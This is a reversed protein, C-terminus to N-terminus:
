AVVFNVLKAGVVVVKRLTADVLLEAVRADARAAAETQEADAAAPVMVRARVKGNVQVPIEVEDDVLWRDKPEPFDAWALSTTHGLSAWLEEAVHPAYPALMLSLPEMAGRPGGNPFQATLHNTLETIRAIPTNIRLNELSARVAAITRHLVRNTEDDLEVDQVRSAGTDEDVALRWIRQLLRHAGPVARTDWPKSMELPGMSMEYLRFTDAGFSDYMEDPTVMNKLGKGIKGFERFAPRGEYTYTGDEAEVVKTAEVYQGREDTYAPAQIYGQNVLKHFPEPTSVHGLDFLVKHWFRSYLLHLVAHEVGGIYLDVGGTEAPRGAPAAMWYQEDDAPALRGGEGSPNIYGLYYWCSGAWQPMVNNDRRYARMGDGLDLEVTMWDTLRDLPAEPNSAADNPDFTRPAFQDTPPLVVPLMEVPLATPLGALEGDLPYVIPFPEGWYRQRAFLWDRLKYNVTGHGHGHTELWENIREIAAAKDMGDLDVTSNASNVHAAEGIYAEPWVRCDLTPEISREAFWEAPPEQTAIIALGHARAFEFDRQDGSPVAMIAGTGYGMLVYDAIFVPVPEGTTPNVAYAGTFVGSKTRGTTDEATREDDTKAAAAARYGAVAQAPTPAGATWRVDTGSPWATPVLADVLEHEPALVMFTAGFLTDPRTTFVEIPGAESAFRVRAGASRGIWNRQMLRVSEPWDVLDLDDILRDAYQTIRMMWQRMRRPFVPFNGRDSRGDATVEENALVTGLGPCWNVPTDSAVVLRHSDILEAQKRKSLMTWSGGSAPQRAGSEFEAILENIPRARKADTDFWANYVQLFIWQTWQYFPEDITRIARRSDHGLGLRRLQRAMIKINAETNDRPHQGTQVAHQEAPLGFADYGMTHLVNHGTMRKFRAYTDTAIYGVPHGVHLGAGSPYPFMDMVFAKPRTAVDGPTGKGVGLNGSPNPAYFTGEAEWREQWKKEIEVALRAGYRFPPTNDVPPIEHDSM